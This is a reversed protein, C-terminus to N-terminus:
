GRAVIRIAGRNVVPSKGRCRCPDFRLRNADDAEAAAASLFVRPQQFQQVLGAPFHKICGAIYAWRHNQGGPLGRQGDHRLFVTGRQNAIQGGRVVQGGYEIRADRM